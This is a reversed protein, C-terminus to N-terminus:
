QPNARRVVDLFAEGYTEVRYPGMGPVALLASDTIPRARAIGQLTADPAIVYPPVKRSKAIESRAARLLEFLDADAPSLAADTTREKRPRERRTRKEAQEVPLRFRLPGTGTMVKWGIDTVFPVPHESPTLDIWGAALLARLLAVVFSQSRHRLVGYTTLQDFGFREVRDTQEGRLMDAIAAMGGRRKARAVGALAKRVEVAAEESLEELDGDEDLAACVDCHGCGGLIEREDGFYRLIFDHRCTHADLYRLLERFLGWQRASAAPGGDGTECLRRRLQVDSASCLLLGHAEEGDRGARGVEQYYAELSAPPQAHVVVRVDARDIGMGFANTAAVVSLKGVAFRLNIDARDDADMGAHYAAARFGQKALDAAM